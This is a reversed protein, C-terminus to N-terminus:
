ETNGEVQEPKLIRYQLFGEEAKVKKYFECNSCFLHKEAFTGQVEGDCLTGAIAWCIRGGKKGYNLGDASNDTAAPCVGLESVKAGGIERGCRFFEWCNFRKMLGEG